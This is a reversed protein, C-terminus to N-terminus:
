KLRLSMCSEDYEKKLQPWMKQALIMFIPSPLVFSHSCSINLGNQEWNINSRWKQGLDAMKLWKQDFILGRWAVKNQCKVLISIRPLCLSSSYENGLWCLFFHHRGLIVNGEGGRAYYYGNWALCFHWNWPDGEHAWGPIAM